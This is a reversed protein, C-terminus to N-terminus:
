ADGKKDCPTFDTILQTHYMHIQKKRLIKKVMTCTKTCSNLYLWVQILLDGHSCLFLPKSLGRLLPQIWIFNEIVPCSFPSRKICTVAQAPKGTCTNYIVEIVILLQFTFLCPTHLVNICAIQTVSSLSIDWKDYDYDHGKQATHSVNKEFVWWFPSHVSVLVRWFSISSAM